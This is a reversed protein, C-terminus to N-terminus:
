GQSVTICSASPIDTLVMPITGMAPLGMHEMGASSQTNVRKSATCTGFETNKYVRLPFSILHLFRSIPVRGATTDPFEHESRRQCRKRLRPFPKASTTRRRKNSSRKTANRALSVKISGRTHLQESGIKGPQFCALADSCFSQQSPMKFKGSM